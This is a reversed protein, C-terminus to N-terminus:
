RAPERGLLRASILLAALTCVLWGALVVFPEIHQQHRFYVATRVIGVTAGPPLFRGIFAYPQPLLPQAVAGGSSTNGLVIFLLWTPIIAWRGVLVLMTSCFLAAVAIEAGLALWLEPFPGRLAGILPDAVLALALGGAIALAAISALWGRLSLEAANARLQFMTSFGVISAALTVYFSVLGQPDQPPLPHLDIVRLPQGTTQTVEGAVQELVRAVSAGSASSILLRPRGPGLVLAAYTAQQGIAEEAAAASAYRRFTLGGHTVRVLARLLTPRQVPSGVLGVTIHHPAARGLALSYSAAFLGALVTAIAIVVVANRYPPRALAKVRSVTLRVSRCWQRLRRFRAAAHVAAGPDSQLDGRLQRRAMQPLVYADAQARM